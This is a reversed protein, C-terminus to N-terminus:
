ESRHRFSWRKDFGHSQLKELNTQPPRPPPAMDPSENILNLLYYQIDQWLQEAPLVKGFDLDLLCPVQCDM